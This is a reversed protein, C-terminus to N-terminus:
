QIVEDDTDKGRHLAYEMLATLIERRETLTPAELLAQKDKPEFPSLMAISNILLEEDASEMSEWDAELGEAAFYRRLLRTFRERELGPDHEPQGLDREFDRWSVNARLYPTFGPTLRKVRFRSIGKLTIMYRGDNLESFAIVRGACGIKHLKPSPTDDSPHIPQIMGILRHTTKLVDDLMALYRPEFIHLPLQGRPLIVAGPLPFLPLTEPLDAACLM